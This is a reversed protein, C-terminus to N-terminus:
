SLLLVTQEAMLFKWGTVPLGDCSMGWIIRSDRDLSLTAGKVLDSDVFLRIPPTYACM